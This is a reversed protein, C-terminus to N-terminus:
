STMIISSLPKVFSLPNGHSAAQGNERHGVTPRFRSQREAPGVSLGTGAADVAPTAAPRDVEGAM